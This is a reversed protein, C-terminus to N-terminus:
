IGGEWPLDGISGVTLHRCRIRKNMWDSTEQLQLLDLLRRCTQLKGDKPQLILLHNEIALEESGTVITGICRQTYNSKSTRRVLVFPPKYTKGTFRINEAFENVTKWPPLVDSHAYPRWSGKNTLRFPVVPGVHVNFV